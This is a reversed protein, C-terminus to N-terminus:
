KQEMKRIKGNPHISISHVYYTSMLIDHCLQFICKFSDTLFSTDIRFVFVFVFCARKIKFNGGQSEHLVRVQSKRKRATYTCICLFISSLPFSIFVNYAIKENMKKLLYIHVFFMVIEWFEWVLNTNRLFYGYGHVDINIQM